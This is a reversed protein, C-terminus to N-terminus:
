SHVVGESSVAACVLQVMDKRCDPRGSSSSSCCACVCVCAIAVGSEPVERQLPQFACLQM